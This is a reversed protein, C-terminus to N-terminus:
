RRSFGNDTLTIEDGSRLGPDSNREFRRQRGDRERAEIIWVTTSRQRKEIERGAYGGAVAGGVTAIKKGSGGGVQNGLLGGIVAGGVTGLATAEGERTETRVSTVLACSSCLQSLRQQERDAATPQSRVPQAPPARRPEAQAVVRPAPTAAPPAEAVPATTTAAIPATMPASNPEGQSRGVAYAGGLLALVVAVGAVIQTSNVTPTAM